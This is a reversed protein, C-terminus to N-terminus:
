RAKDLEHPSPSMKSVRDTASFRLHVFDAKANQSLLGLNTAVHKQFSITIVSSTVQTHNSSPLDRGPPQELEDIAGITLSCLTRHFRHELHLLDVDGRYFTRSRSTSV